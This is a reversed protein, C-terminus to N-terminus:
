IKEFNVLEALEDIMISKCKEDNFEWISDSFSASAHATICHKESIGKLQNDTVFNWFSNPKHMAGPFKINTEKKISMM